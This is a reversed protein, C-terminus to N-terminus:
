RWRTRLSRGAGRARPGTGAARAAAGARGRCARPDLTVRLAAISPARLGKAGRLEVTLPGGEHQVVATHWDAADPGVASAADYAYQTLADDVLVDFVRKGPEVKDTEAFGLDINYTGKPADPFTYVLDSDPTTRQSQFLADDETGAIPARTSTM